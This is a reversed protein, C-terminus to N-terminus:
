TRSRRGVEAGPVPLLDTMVPAASAAHEAIEAWSLNQEGISAV